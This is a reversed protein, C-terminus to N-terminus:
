KVGRSHIGTYIEWPPEWTPPTTRPGPDSSQVAWLVIAALLGLIVVVLM